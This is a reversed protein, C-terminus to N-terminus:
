VGTIIGGSSDRKAGTVSCLCNIENRWRLVGLFAFILAEKFDILKRDPLHIKVGTLRELQKILFSNMAGGGTILINEGPMLDFNRSLQFAIHETTTRLRDKLDINKDDILPLFCTEFWERGLSKPPYIKYYPLKNLKDLLDANLGGVSAMIGDEDYLKGAEGALHNIALNLPCIDFAIRGKATEYSINAIGGLNLCYKYESFLFKDGIPVLPAGQGGLVVDLSRFDYIVPVSTKASICTGKGIQLTLRRGPQHFITHGHSSIFDPNLKHISIFKATIEGLYNGYEIDAKALDIAQSNPLNQLTTKWEAPYPITEAILIEFTWKDKLYFHCYAIDVGDLSTGSMLGIVKYYNM